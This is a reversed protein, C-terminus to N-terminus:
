KIYKINIDRSVLETYNNYIGEPTNSTKGNQKHHKKAPSYVDM